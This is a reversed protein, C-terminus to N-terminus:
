KIPFAFPNGKKSQLKGKLCGLLEEKLQVILLYKIPLFVLSYGKQFTSEEHDLYDSM